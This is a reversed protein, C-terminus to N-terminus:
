RGGLLLQHLDVAIPGIRLGHRRRPDSLGLRVSAAPRSSAGIYMSVAHLDRRIGLQRGFRGSRHGIRRLDPLVPHILCALSKGGALNAVVHHPEGVLHDVTQEALLRAPQRGAVAVVPAIAHGHGFVVHTSEDSLQHSREIAKAVREGGVIQCTEEGTFRAKRLGGRGQRSRGRARVGIGGQPAIEVLSPLRQAPAGMEAISEGAEDFAGEKRLAAGDIVRTPSTRRSGGAHV